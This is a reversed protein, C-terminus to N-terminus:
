SLNFFCTLVLRANEPGSGFGALPMAVHWLSSKHIVLRGFVAPVRAYVEWEELKNSFIQSVDTEATQELSGDRLNRCFATGSGWPWERSLYLHASYEGMVLDSHVRHPALVDKTMMRSFIATPVIGHNIKGEIAKRFDSKVSAPIDKAIEPYEVTDFESKVTVFPLRTVVPFIREALKPTDWYGLTIM